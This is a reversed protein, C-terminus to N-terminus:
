KGLFNSGSPVAIFKRRIQGPSFELSAYRVYGALVESNSSSTVSLPLPEPKCVAVPISFLPGLEQNDIDYANIRGFYAGPEIFTPDVHFGFARGGSNLHLHKPTKIWSHSSKFELKVEMKLKAENQTPQDNKVFNPTISVNFSNLRSTEEPTRLYIGRNDDISISYDLHFNPMNGVKSLYEWADMVQIFKVSLSDGIDKGSNQIARKILYPTYSRKEAKLGSLLLSICGCCNPSAMSTGNMLQSNQITFQPM